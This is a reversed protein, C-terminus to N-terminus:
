LLLVLGDVQQLERYIELVQEASDVEPEITVCVHRGNATRRFSFAPENREKLQSRVAAVVHGVFRESDSGIAKYTYLCPFQHISELLAKEPLAEM